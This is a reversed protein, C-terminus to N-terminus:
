KPAEPFHGNLAERVMDKVEDSFDSDLIWQLYSQEAGVLQQINKRRAHKGFTPYLKGNWWRFKGEKDFNGQRPEYDFDRLSEIGEEETGYKHIQADLIELTAEVDGLATHACHLEKKCYFEYAATLDRKEHIHYIKQADYVKRNEMDLKIGANVLERELLPIDFREVNFGGIDSDGMFELVEGAIERFPPADKVDEDTINIIASVQPPIPIGPNIRKLYTEKSAEPLLKVMGIEVIKDKEKWTGTTELDLIVLPHSLKM